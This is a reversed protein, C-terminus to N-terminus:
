KISHPNININGNLIQGRMEDASVNKDLHKYRSDEFLGSLNNGLNTRNKYERIDEETKGIDEPVILDLVKEVELPLTNIEKYLTDIERAKKALEVKAKYYDSTLKGLDKSKRDIAKQTEKYIEVANKRTDISLEFKGLAKIKEDVVNLEKVKTDLEVKLAEHEKIAVEEEEILAKYSLSDINKRIAEISIALGERQNHLEKEKTDRGRFVAQISEILNEITM